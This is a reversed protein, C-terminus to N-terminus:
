SDCQYSCISCKIMALLGLLYILATFTCMNEVEGGFLASVLCVNIGRRPQTTTNHSHPHLAATIHSHPQRTATNRSHEANAKPQVDVFILDAVFHLNPCSTGCFNLSECQHTGNVAVKLLLRFIPANHLSCQSVVILIPELVSFAFLVVTTGQLIGFGLDFCTPRALIQRKGIGTIPGELRQLAGGLGQL